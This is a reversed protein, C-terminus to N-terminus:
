DFAWPLSSWQVDGTEGDKWEQKISQCRTLRRELCAPTSERYIRIRYGYVSISGRRRQETGTKYREQGDGDQEISYTFETGSLSEQESWHIKKKSSECCGISHISIPPSNWQSPLSLYDSLSLPVNTGKLKGRGFTWCDFKPCAAQKQRHVSNAKVCGM